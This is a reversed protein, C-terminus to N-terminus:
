GEWLPLIKGGVLAAPTEDLARLLAALWGPEPLADADTIALVDGNAERLGINRALSVGAKESHFYRVTAPGAARGTVIRRTADDPSQDIVLVELPSVTQRDLADLCGGILDPRKYTAIIVSARRPM